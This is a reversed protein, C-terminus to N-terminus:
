ANTELMTLLTKSVHVESRVMRKLWAKFASQHM